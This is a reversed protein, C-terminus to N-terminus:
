LTNKLIEVEVQLFAIVMDELPESNKKKKQNPPYTQVIQELSVIKKSPLFEIRFNYNLLM